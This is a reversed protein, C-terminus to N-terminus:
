GHREWMVGLAAKAHAVTSKRSYTMFESMGGKYSGGSSGTQATKRAVSTFREITDTINGYSGWLLRQMLQQPNLPCNHM